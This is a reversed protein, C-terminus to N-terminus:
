GATIYTFTTLRVCYVLRNLISHRNVHKTGAKVNVDDVNAVKLLDENAALFPDVEEAIFEDVQQPARGVFLCPGIMQDLKSHVPTFKPDKKIREMLDNPKAEGKVVAGADM